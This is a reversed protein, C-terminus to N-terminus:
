FNFHYGIGRAESYLDFGKQITVKEEGWFQGTLKLAVNEGSAMEPMDTIVDFVLSSLRTYIRGREKTPDPQHELRPSSKVEYVRKSESDIPLTGVIFEIDM